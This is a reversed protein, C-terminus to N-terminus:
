SRRSAIRAAIQDVTHVVVLELRPAHEKLIAIVRDCSLSPTPTYFAIDFRQHLVAARLAAEFDIRVIRAALERLGSVNIVWPCILLMKLDAGPRSM